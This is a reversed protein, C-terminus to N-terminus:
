SMPAKGWGINSERPSEIKSIRLSRQLSSLGKSGRGAPSQENFCKIIAENESSLVSGQFPMDASNSVQFQLVTEEEVQENM